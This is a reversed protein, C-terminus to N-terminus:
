QWVVRCVEFAGCLWGCVCVAGSDGSDWQEVFWACHKVLKWQNKKNRKKWM